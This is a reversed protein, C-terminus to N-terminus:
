LFLYTNCEYASGRLRTFEGYPFCTLCDEGAYKSNQKQAAEFAAQEGQKYGHQGCLAGGRFEEIKKGLRDLANAFDKSVEGYAQLWDGLIRGVLPITKMKAAGDTLLDGILRLGYTPNNKAHEPNFKKAFQWANDIDGAISDAYALRGAAAQLKEKLGSKNLKNFMERLQGLKEKAKAEESPGLNFLKKALAIGEEPASSFVAQEYQQYQKKLETMRTKGQQLTQRVAQWEEETQQLAEQFEDDAQVAGAAMISLVLLLCTLGGSLLKKFDIMM